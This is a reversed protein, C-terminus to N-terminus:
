LSRRAVRQVVGAPVLLEDRREEDVEVVEAPDVVGEAVLGAVLQELLHGAPQPGGTTVPLVFDAGGGSAIAGSTARSPPSSNVTIM